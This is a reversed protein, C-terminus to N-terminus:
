KCGFEGPRCEYHDGYDHMDKVWERPGGVYPSKSIVTTETPERKPYPEDLWGERSLWTAPYPIYQKPPLNPDESLRSVGDLILEINEKGLRVFTDRASAKGVKRPYKEWFKEFDSLLLTKEDDKKLNTKKLNTNKLTRNGTAPLGTYPFGTLPETTEWIAESFKGIESREQRRTLYGADELERVAGNIADRGCDNAVSLSRTTVSWGASHSLLQALLGKAKLSLRTDRLWANPIQTFEGEFKFSRRIIPM